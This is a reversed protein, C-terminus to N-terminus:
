EGYIVGEELDSFIEKCRECDFRAFLAQKGDRQGIFFRTRMGHVCRGVFNEIASAAELKKDM